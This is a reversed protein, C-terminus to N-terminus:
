RLLLGFIAPKKHFDRHPLKKWESIPHTEIFEDATTLAAALTFLTNNHCTKLIQEILKNNRYPTEMFFQAQQEQVSRKELQRIRATLKHPNRPLYGNFAFNQGNLGSAAIALVISSPGVLPTVRVGLQHAYRVLEMGPDAIGPMGAETIIGARPATTSNVLQQCVEYTSNKDVVMFELSDIDIDANLKKLYRRATRKNEVFFTDLQLVIGIVSPSIVTHPPTDGLMAPILILEQIM